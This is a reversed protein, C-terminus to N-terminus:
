FVEAGLNPRGIRRKRPATDKSGPPRGLKNDGLPHRKVKDLSGLPRGATRKSVKMLPNDAQIGMTADLIANTTSNELVNIENPGKNPITAKLIPEMNLISPTNEAAIEIKSGKKSTVKVNKVKTPSMVDITSAITAITPQNQFTKAFILANDLIISSNDSKEVKLVGKRVRKPKVLGRVVSDASFQTVVAM